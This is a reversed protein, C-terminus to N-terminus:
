HIGSIPWIKFSSFTIHPMDLVAKQFISGELDLVVPLNQLFFDLDVFWGLPGVLDVFLCVFLCVFL